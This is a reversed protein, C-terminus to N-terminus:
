NYKTQNTTTKNKVSKEMETKNTALKFDIYSIFCYLCHKHLLFEVKVFYQSLTNSTSMKQLKILCRKNDM